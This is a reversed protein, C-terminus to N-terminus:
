REKLALLEEFRKIAEKSDLFDLELAQRAREIKSNESVAEEFKAVLEEIKKAYKV